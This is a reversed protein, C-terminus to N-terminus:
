VSHCNTLKHMLLKPRFDLPDTQKFTKFGCKSYLNVAPLNDAYVYLAMNRESWLEAQYEAAKLLGTALGSRREQCAVVMKDIYCFSTDGSSLIREQRLESMMWENTRFIEIVGAVCSQDELSSEQKYVQGNPSCRGVQDSRPSHALIESESPGSPTTYAEYANDVIRDEPSPSYPEAVLMAFCEPFSFGYDIKQALDYRIVRDIFEGDLFSVSSVLQVIGEEDAAQYPRIRWSKAVGKADRGSAITTVHNNSNRTYQQLAGSEPQANWCTVHRGKPPLRERPFQSPGQGPKHSVETVNRRCTTANRAAPPLCGSVTQRFQRIYNSSCGRRQTVSANKHSM